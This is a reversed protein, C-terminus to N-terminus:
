YDGNDKHLMCVNLRAYIDFRGQTQTAFFDREIDGYMVARINTIDLDMVALTDISYYM